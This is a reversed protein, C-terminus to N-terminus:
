PESSTTLPVHVDRGHRDSVVLEASLECAWLFRRLTGLEISDLGRGEMRAIAPQSVTMASAVRGQTLGALERFATLARDEALREAVKAAVRAQAAADLDAFPDGEVFTTHTNKM